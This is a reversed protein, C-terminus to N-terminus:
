FGNKDVIKLWRGSVTFIKIKQFKLKQQLILYNPNKKRNVFIQQELEKMINKTKKQSAKRM